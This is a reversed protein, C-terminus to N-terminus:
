QSVHFDIAPHLERYSKHRRLYIPLITMAVLFALLFDDLLFLVVRFLGLLFAVFFVADFDVARLVDAFFDGAFFDDEFFLEAFFDLELFYLGDALL